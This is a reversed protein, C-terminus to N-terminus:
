GSIQFKHPAPIMQWIVIQRHLFYLYNIILLIINHLYLYPVFIINKKNPSFLKLNIGGIM